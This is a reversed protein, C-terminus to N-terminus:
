SFHIRVSGSVILDQNVLSFSIRLDKVQEVKEPKSVSHVLCVRKTKVMCDIASM